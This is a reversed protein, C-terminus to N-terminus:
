SANLPNKLRKLITKKYIYDLQSIFLKNMANREHQKLTAHLPKQLDFPPKWPLTLIIDAVGVHRLLAYPWGVKPKTSVVKEKKREKWGRM